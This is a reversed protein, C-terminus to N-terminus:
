KFHYGQSFHSHSMTTQVFNLSSFCLNTGRGRGGDGWGEPVESSSIHAGIPVQYSDVTTVM